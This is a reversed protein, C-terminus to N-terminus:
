CSRSPRSRWGRDSRRGIELAGAPGSQPPVPAAAAAASQTGPAASAALGGGHDRGLFTRPARASSSRTIAAFPPRSFSRAILLMVAVVLSTSRDLAAKLGFRRGIQLIGVAHPRSWAARRARPAPTRRRARSPERDALRARHARARAARDAFCASARCSRAAARRRARCRQAGAQQGVDLVVAPRPM